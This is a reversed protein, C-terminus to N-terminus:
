KKKHITYSMIRCLALTKAANRCFRTKTWVAAKKRRERCSETLSTSRASSLSTASAEFSPKGTPTPRRRWAACSFAQGTRLSAAYPADEFVMCEAPALGLRRAAELYIDPEYKPVGVDEITLMFSFYQMMGRDLLAKEAHRRATLTAIAMKVGKRRMRELFEIVGPKPKAITEYRSTILEDMGDLMQERTLPLEPHRTLFYDAVQPQSFGECAAFDQDTIHLDFQKLYNQTLRKWVPMSDLLTGDMDFIAGKINQM